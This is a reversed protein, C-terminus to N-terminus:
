SNPWKKIKIKIVKTEKNTDFLCIPLDITKYDM